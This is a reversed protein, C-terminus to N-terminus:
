EPPCKKTPTGNSQWCLENVLAGDKYTGKTKLQGNHHYAEWPGHRLHDKYTGKTRLQGNEFYEVWLGHLKGDKLTLKAWLQGNKNYREVIGHLKGDKYTGEFSLQGNEHYRVFAGHRVGDRYTTQIKGTTAGTYPVNTFKKFWLGSRQVLDDSDVTDGSNVPPAVALMMVLLIHRLKLARSPKM